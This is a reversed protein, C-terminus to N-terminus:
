QRARRDVLPYDLRGIRFSARRVGSQEVTLFVNRVISIGEVRRACRISCGAFSYVARAALAPSLSKFYRSLQSFPTWPRSAVLAYIRLSVTPRGSVYVARSSHPPRNIALGLRPM